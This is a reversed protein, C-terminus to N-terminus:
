HYCVAADVLPRMIQHTVLGAGEGNIANLTKRKTLRSLGGQRDVPKIPASSGPGPPLGWIAFPSSKSLQQHRRTHEGGSAWSCTAGNTEWEILLKCIVSEVM